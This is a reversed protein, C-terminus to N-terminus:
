ESHDEEWSFQEDLREMDPYAKEYMGCALELLKALMVMEMKDEAEKLLPPEGFKYTVSATSRDGGLEVWGTCHWTTPVDYDQQVEQVEWLM